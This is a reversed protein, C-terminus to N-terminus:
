PSVFCNMQWTIPAAIQAAHALQLFAEAQLVGTIVGPEVIAVGDAFNIEKIRNM